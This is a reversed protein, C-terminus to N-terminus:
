LKRWYKSKYEMVGMDKLRSIIPAIQSAQVNKVNNYIKFLEDPAYNSSIITIKNNLYRYDIVAQLVELLTFDTARENGLDDLLLVDITQLKRIVSSISADQFKNFTEKVELMCNQVLNIYIDKGKGNYLNATHYLFHTKGIGSKGYIYLTHNNKLQNFLEKKNDCDVKMYKQDLILNTNMGGRAKNCRVGSLKDNIIIPAIGILDQKCTEYSICEDCIKKRETYILKNLENM